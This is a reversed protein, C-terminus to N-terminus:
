LATEQGRTLKPYVTRSAVSERGVNILTEYVAIYRGGVGEAGFQEVVRCRGAEGMRRRAAGSEALRVVRDVFGSWDDYDVLYGTEGDVVLESNGGVRTVVTPLGARMSELLTISLGETSSTLVSIDMAAYCDEVDRRYGAGIVFEAVGRTELEARLTEADTGVGILLFRVNPAAAVVHRVVDLLHRGGKVARPLNAVMGVVVHEDTFGFARRTAARGRGINTTLPIGNHIVITREPSVNEKRLAVDRVASAVCIIRDPISRTLRLALYAGRGWSFGMDERNEVLVPALGMIKLLRAYIISWFFYSHVVDPKLERAIRRLEMLRRMQAIPFRDYWGGTQTVRVEVGSPLERVLPPKQTVIVVKWGRSRWLAALQCVHNGTGGGLDELLLLVSRGLKERQPAAYAASETSGTQRNALPASHVFEKVLAQRELEKVGSCLVVGAREAALM